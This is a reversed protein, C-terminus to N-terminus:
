AAVEDLRHDKLCTESGCTACVTSKFDIVNDPDHKGILPSSMRSSKAPTVQKANLIWNRWTKEWDLSLGKPGPASRYFNCFKETEISVDVDSRKGTAWAKMETTLFFKDPLRTGKPPPAAPEREEEEKNKVEKKNSKVRDRSEDTVDAHGRQKRKRLKSQEKTTLEKKIKRSVITFKAFKQTVSAHCVTVDAAKTAILESTCRKLEAPQVGLLRCLEVSTGVLSFTGSKRMVCICRVWFGQTELSCRNLQEDTLWKLHEFKFWWDNKAM